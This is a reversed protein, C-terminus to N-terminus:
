APTAAQQKNSTAQQAAHESDSQQPQQRELQPRELQNDNSQESDPQNADPLETDSQATDPQEADPQKSIPQESDAPQHVPQADDPREGAPHAPSSHLPEAQSQVRPRIDATLTGATVQFTASQDLIDIPFARLNTCTIFTQGRGKIWTLLHGRRADDLDSMVDDLLMVPPEGVYEEILRFEALKLSLAVTRQQGQSGYTRADAGNISFSLDDRQPGVLTTGRRAEERGVVVLQAHFANAVRETASLATQPGNLPTDGAATTHKGAGSVYDVAGIESDAAQQADAMYREEASSERVESAASTGKQERNGTGPQKAGDEAPLVFSPIYRVDLTERGDTLERHIQAALPALREVYFRRTDLLPAGFHVLQETWADLGLEAPPRPRDRLDRLLRNRQQLVRKYHGMNVVYRPSIQSIEVNLYHRRDTPEGTVINLDLAGFFVANFQGLLDMVRDRKMGNVRVAKKNEGQFVSVQLEVDGERERDVIGTVHAIETDRLILESERGARLSRTTALLWLAELINSKGQANEGYLINIGAQPKLDLERYNRFHSLKLQCVRM